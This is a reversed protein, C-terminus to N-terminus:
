ASTSIQRRGIPPVDITSEECRCWLSMAVNKKHTRTRLRLNQARVVILLREASCADRQIMRTSPKSNHLCTACYVFVTYYLSMAQVKSLFCFFSTHKKVIWAEHTMAPQPATWPSAYVSSLDHHVAQPCATHCPWFTHKNLLRLWRQQSEFARKPTSALVIRWLELYGCRQRYTHAAANNIM